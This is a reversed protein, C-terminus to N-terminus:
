LRDPPPRRGFRQLQRRDADTKIGAAEDFDILLHARCHMIYKGDPVDSAIRHQRVLGDMLPM